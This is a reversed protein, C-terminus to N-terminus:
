LGLEGLDLKGTVKLAAEGALDAKTKKSAPKGASKNGSAQFAHRQKRLRVIISDIDQSSLELPDRSFLVGIPTEEATPEPQDVKSM